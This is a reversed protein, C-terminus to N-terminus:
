EDTESTGQMDFLTLIPLSPFLSLSLPSDSVLQEQGKIFSNVLVFRLMYSVTKESCHICAYFRVQANLGSHLTESM